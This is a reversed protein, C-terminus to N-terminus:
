LLPKTVHYDMVEHNFEDRYRACRGLDNDLVADFTFAMSRAIEALMVTRPYTQPGEKGVLAVFLDRALATNEKYGNNFSENMEDIRPTMLLVMCINPSHLIHLIKGM